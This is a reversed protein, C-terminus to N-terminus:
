GQEFNQSNMQGQMISERLQRIEQQKIEADADLEEISNYTRDQYVASWATGIRMARNYQNIQRDYWNFWAILQGIRVTPSNKFEEFKQLFEARQMQEDHKVEDHCDEQEYCTQGKHPCPEGNQIEEYHTQEESHIIKEDPFQEHQNM